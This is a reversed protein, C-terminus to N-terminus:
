HTFRTNLTLGWERGLEACSNASSHGDDDISPLTSVNM